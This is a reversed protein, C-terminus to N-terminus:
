AVFCEVVVPEAGVAMLLAIATISEEAMALMTGPAPGEICKLIEVYAFRYGGAAIVWVSVM